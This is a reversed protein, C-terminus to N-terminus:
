IVKDVHRENYNVLTSVGVLSPLHRSILYLLQLCTFPAVYSYLCTGKLSPLYM